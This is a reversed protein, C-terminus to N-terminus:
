EDGVGQMVGEYNEPLEKFIVAVRAGCEKCEATGDGWRSYIKEGCYPCYEIDNAESYGEQYDYM